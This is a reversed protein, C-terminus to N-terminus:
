CAESIFLLRTQLSSLQYVVSKDAHFMCNTFHQELVLDTFGLIKGAFGLNKGGSGMTPPILYRLLTFGILLLNGAASSLLLWICTLSYDLSSNKFLLM